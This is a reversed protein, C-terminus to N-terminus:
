KVERLRLKWMQSIAVALSGTELTATLHKLVQFPLSAHPFPWFAVRELELYVIVQLSKDWPCFPLGLGPGALTAWPPGPSEPSLSAGLQKRRRGVM